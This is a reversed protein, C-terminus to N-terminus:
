RRDTYPNRYKGFLARGASLEANHRETQVYRIAFDAKGNSFRMASVMGDGSLVAGGDEVFPPFAPDPVARFWTGDIDAPIIGEVALGQIAYEEGIPANLGTYEPTKPFGAM